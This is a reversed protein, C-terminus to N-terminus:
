TESPPSISEPSLTAALALSFSSQTRAIKPSAIFRKLLGDQLSADGQLWITEGAPSPLMAKWPGGTPLPVVRVRVRDRDAGIAVLKQPGAGDAGLVFLEADDEDLAGAQAKARIPRTRGDGDVHEM